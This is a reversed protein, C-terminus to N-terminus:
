AGDDCENSLCDVIRVGVVSFLVTAGADNAQVLRGTDGEAGAAVAHGTSGTGLQNHSGLLREARKATGRHDGKLTTPVCAFIDAQRM